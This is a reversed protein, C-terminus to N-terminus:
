CTTYVSVFRSIKTIAAAHANVRGQLNTHSEGLGMTGCVEMAPGWAPAARRGLNLVHTTAFIKGLIM